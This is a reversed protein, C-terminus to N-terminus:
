ILYTGQVGRTRRGAEEDLSGLRQDIGGTGADTELLLT